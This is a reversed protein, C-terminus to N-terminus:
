YNFHEGNYIAQAVEINDLKIGKEKAKKLYYEYRVQCAKIKYTYYDVLEQDDAYDFNINANIWESKASKINEIIDKEEETINLELLESKERMSFFRFLKNLFSNKEVKINIENQHELKM